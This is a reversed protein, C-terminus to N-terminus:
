WVQSNILKDEAKRSEEQRIRALQKSINTITTTVNKHRGEVIVRNPKDPCVEM